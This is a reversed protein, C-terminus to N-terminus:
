DSMDEEGQFKQIIMTVLKPRLLARPEIEIGEKKLFRSLTKPNIGLTDAVQQRTMPKPLHTTNSM